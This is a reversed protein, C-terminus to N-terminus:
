EESAVKAAAEDLLQNVRNRLDHDLLARVTVIRGEVAEWSLELRTQGCGANCCALRYRARKPRDAVPLSTVEAIQQATSVDVRGARITRYWSRCRNCYPQRIVPGLMVLAAALVLLGDVAWTVWALTGHVVLDGLLPRGRDAQQQLFEGFPRMARLEASPWHNAALYGLYHQGAVTVTVALVTGLVITPRHGVQGIRMLGVMVAGVAVGVLLPFLLLPAFYAQGIEAVWAAALGVLGATLLWLVLKFWSFDGGDTPIPKAPLPAQRIEM